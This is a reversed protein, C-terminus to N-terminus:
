CWRGIGGGKEWGEERSKKNKELKREKEVSTLLSVPDTVSVSVSASLVLPSLLQMAPSLCFVGHSNVGKKRVCGGTKKNNAQARENNRKLWKGRERATQKRNENAM